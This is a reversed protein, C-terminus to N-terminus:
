PNFIDPNFFGAIDRAHELARSAPGSPDIAASAAYDTMAARRNGLRWYAKGRMFLLSADSPSAGLLRTAEAVAEDLRDSALLAELDSIQSM